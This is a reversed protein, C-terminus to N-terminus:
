RTADPSETRVGELVAMGGDGSSNVELLRIADRGEFRTAEATVGLLDLQDISLQQAPEREATRPPKVEALLTGFMLIWALHRIM